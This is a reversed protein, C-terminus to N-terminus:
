GPGHDLSIKTAIAMGITFKKEILNGGSLRSHIKGLVM